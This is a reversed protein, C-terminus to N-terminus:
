HILEGFEKSKTKILSREVTIETQVQAFLEQAMQTISSAM